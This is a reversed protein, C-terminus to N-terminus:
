LLTRSDGSKIYALYIHIKQAIHTQKKYISLYTLHTAVSVPFSHKNILDTGTM